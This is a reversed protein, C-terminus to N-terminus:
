SLKSQRYVLELLMADHLNVTPYLGIDAYLEHDIVPPDNPIDPKTTDYYLKSRSKFVDVASYFIEEFSYDVLSAVNYVGGLQLKVVQTLVSIFDNIHLFNRRASNSGYL